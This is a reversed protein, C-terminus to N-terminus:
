LERKKTVDCGFLGVLVWVFFIISNEGFFISVNHENNSELIPNEEAEVDCRHQTRTHLSQYVINHYIIEGM